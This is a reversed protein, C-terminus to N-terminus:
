DRAARHRDTGHPAGGLESFRTSFTGLTPIIGPSRRDWGPVSIPPPGPSYTSGLVGDLFQRFLGSPADFTAEWFVSAAINPVNPGRYVPWIWM